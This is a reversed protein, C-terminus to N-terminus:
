ANVIRETKPAAALDILQAAAKRATKAIDPKEMVQATVIAGELLLAISDALSVQDQVELQNCLKVIYGHMLRKYSKSIDRIPAPESSFEAIANIFICGYFNQQLFWEEAVEFIALIQDRPTEARAAVQRMFQNRFLGDQYQLAALILEDKSQFYHYLTKKSLGAAQLIASIGTAHFGNKAFLVLATRILHERKSVM